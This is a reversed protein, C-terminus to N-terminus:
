YYRKSENQIKKKLLCSRWFKQIMLTARIEEKCDMLRAYLHALFTIVTKADLGQAVVDAYTGVDSRHNTSMMLPIRGLMMSAVQINKFNVFVDKATTPNMTITNKCLLMPHYHHVLLNFIVGDTFSSTWNKDMCVGYNAVM